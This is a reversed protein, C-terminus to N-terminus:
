DKATYKRAIRKNNSIQHQTGGVQLRKERGKLKEIQVNPCLHLSYTEVCQDPELLNPSFM